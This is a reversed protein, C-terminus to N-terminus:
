LKLYAAIKIHESKAKSLENDLEQDPIKKDYQVKFKKYSHSNLPDLVTCM